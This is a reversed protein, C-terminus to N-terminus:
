AVPAPASDPVAILSVIEPPMDGAEVIMTTAIEPALGPLLGNSGLRDVGGVALVPVDPVEGVIVKVVVPVLSKSRPRAPIVTATVWVAPEPKKSRSVGDVV